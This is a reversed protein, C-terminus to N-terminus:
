SNTSETVHETRGTKTPGNTERRISMYVIMYPLKMVNAIASVKEGSQYRHWVEREQEANLKRPRGM